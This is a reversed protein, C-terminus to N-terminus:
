SELLGIYGEIISIIIIVVIKNDNFKKFVCIELM